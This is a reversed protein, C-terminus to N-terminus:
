VSKIIKVFESNNESSNKEEEKMEELRKEGDEVKKLYKIYNEMAKNYDSNAKELSISAQELRREAEELYSKNSQNLAKQINQAFEDPLKLLNAKSLEKEVEKAKEPDCTHSSRDYGNYTKGCRWCEEDVYGITPNFFPDDFM